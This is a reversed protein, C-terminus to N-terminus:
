LELRFYGMEVMVGVEQNGMKKKKKTEDNHLGTELKSSFKAL